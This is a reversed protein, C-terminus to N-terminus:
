FTWAGSWNDAESSQFIHISDESFFYRHLSKQVNLVQSINIFEDPWEPHYIAGRFMM